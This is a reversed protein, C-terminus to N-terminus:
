MMPSPRVASRVAHHTHVIGPMAIRNVTMAILRTPSPSLSASLGRSGAHARAHSRFRAVLGLHVASASEDIAKADVKRRPGLTRASDVVHREFQPVVLDQADHALRSRALRHHRARDQAQEWGAVHFRGAPPYEVAALVQERRRRRSQALQAAAADRHDELFRHRRQVRHEREAALDLLRDLDVPSVARPVAGARGRCARQPADARAARMNSAYGCWTEPPWRWRAIIAIASVSSGSMRIASSGVVASSTVVCACISASIRSICDARRMATSNMVWSKPTTASIASRIATICCPLRTSCPRDRSPAAPAAACSCSSAARPRASDPERAGRASKRPLSTAMRTDRTACSKRLPPDQRGASGHVRDLVDRKSMRRPSVSPM